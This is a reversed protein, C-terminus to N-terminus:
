TNEIDHKLQKLGEEKKKLSTMGDKKNQSMLTTMEHRIETVLNQLKDQDVKAYLKQNMTEM